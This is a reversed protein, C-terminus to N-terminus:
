ARAKMKEKEWRMLARYIRQATDNLPVINGKPDRQWGGLDLLCRTGNSGGSIALSVTDREDSGANIEVDGGIDWGRASARLGSATTGLRSAEGRQGKLTGYFRAM